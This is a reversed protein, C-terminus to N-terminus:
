DFCIRNRGSNKAKYLNTDAVEIFREYSMGYRYNGVGLSISVRELVENSLTANYVKERIEEARNIATQKDAGPFVLLFEEGGYRSVIDGDRCANKLLASLNILVEDGIIHGYTDNLRKFNDIDIMVISLGTGKELSIKMESQLYEIMFRRNYTTTLPDKFSMDELQQTLKKVNEKEKYYQRFISKSIFGIAISVLAVNSSISFFSALESPLPIVFHPNFYSFGIVFIFWCASLIAVIIGLIGKILFLSFAIGLAFYGPIGCNIGGGTFFMLPLIIFNMFVFTFITILDHHNNFYNAFLFMTPFFFTFVTLIKIAEISSGDIFCTAIGALGAFFGFSFLINFFRIRIPQDQGLFREFFRKVAGIAKSNIKQIKSQPNAQQPECLAIVRENYFWPFM